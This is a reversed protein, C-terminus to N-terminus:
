APTPVLRGLKRYEREAGALADAATVPTGRGAALYAATVAASRIAGGALEFQAALHPLIEALGDAQPAGSLALWWLRARHEADPFPFDVVLDFRRTFAEDVNARLNTTLVAIGGFSELRQLLYASELNAYRDRADRVGGRKGFVADAEDFLLVADAQDAATFVRELNKETEGVYKDVLSALDVVHLDLGIEGAVVEAALTKGTGSEGAFLAVVGQGRGGGTRMRWGGLVQQRTRARVVLEHLQASRDDPLMLDNWGVAPPVRRVHRDLQPASQQRAARQVHADAVPMRDIAAFVRAAELTADIQAPTLRYPALAPAFEAPVTPAPQPVEVTVVTADPAWAPDLGTPGYTFLAPPPPAAALQRVLRAADDVVPGVVLGAGRLRAERVASSLRAEPRVILAPRGTATIADVAADAGDSADARAARVHVLLPGASPLGVLTSVPPVSPVPVLRASGVLEEDLTHDDGLLHAVVREPVRLSRGPLPRDDDELTLLGGARLPASRHFRARAEALHPGLGLLELTLQVTARRRGVDDNLYGYLPEVRRDVDPAVAILLIAEDLPTLAFGAAVDDPLRLPGPRFEDPSSVGLPGREAFVRAADPSLLLGRLPDLADPDAAAREAVTARLREFLAALPALLATM